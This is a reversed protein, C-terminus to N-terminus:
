VEHQQAELPMSQARRYRDYRGLLPPSINNFSNSAIRLKSNHNFTHYVEAKPSKFTRSAFSVSRKSPSEMLYAEERHQNRVEDIDLVGTKDHKANQIKRYIKFLIFVVFCAYCVDVWEVFKQGYLSSLLAEYSPPLSISLRPFPAV